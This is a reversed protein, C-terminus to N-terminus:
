PFHIKDYRAFDDIFTIIYKIERPFSFPKIPRLLDTYIRQVPKDSKTRSESFPHKEMKALIFVKCDKISEDFKM